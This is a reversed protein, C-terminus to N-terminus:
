IEEPRTLGVGRASALDLIIISQKVEIETWDCRNLWILCLAKLGNDIESLTGNFRFFEGACSAFKDYTANKFESEM